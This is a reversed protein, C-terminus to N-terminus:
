AAVELTQQGAEEREMRSLTCDLTAFTDALYDNFRIIAKATYGVEGIYDGEPVSDIEEAKALWDAYPRTKRSNDRYSSFALAGQYYYLRREGSDILWQSLLSSKLQEALLSFRETNLDSLTGFVTMSQQAALKADRLLAEKKREILIDVEAQGKVWQPAGKVNISAMNKKLMWEGTVACQRYKGDGQGHITSDIPAGSDLRVLSPSNKHSIVTEGDYPRLKIFGKGMAPLDEVLFSHYAAGNELVLICTPTESPAQVSELNKDTVTKIDRCWKGGFRGACKTWGNHKYSADEDIWHGYGSLYVVKAGHYAFVNIWEGNVAMKIQRAV